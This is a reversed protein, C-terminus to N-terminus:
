ADRIASEIKPSIPMISLHPWWLTRPELRGLWFSWKDIEDFGFFIASIVETERTDKSSLIERLAKRDKRSLAGHAARPHTHWDGLYSLRGEYIQFLRDMEAWQWDADPEFSYSYHKAKKGPGIMELVQVSGDVAHRGMFAGGTELPFCRAAELLCGTLLESGLTVIKQNPMDHM